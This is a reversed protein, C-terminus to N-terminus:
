HKYIVGAASSRGTLWPKEQHPSMNSGVAFNIICFPAPLWNWHCTNFQHGATWFFYWSTLSLSHFAFRFIFTNRSRRSSHTYIKQIPKKLTFKFARRRTVAAPPPPLPPPPPPPPPKSCYMKPLLLHLTSVTHFIFILFNTHINLPHIHFVCHMERFVNM